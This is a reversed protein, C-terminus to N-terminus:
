GIFVNIAARRTLFKGIPKCSLLIALFKPTIPGIRTTAAWDLGLARRAFLTADRAPLVLLNDLGYLFPEVFIRIGHARTTLRDLVWETCHLHPHLRCQADQRMAICCKEVRGSKTQRM